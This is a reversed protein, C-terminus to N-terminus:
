STPLQIDRFCIINKSTDEPVSIVHVKENQTQIPRVFSGTNMSGKMLIKEFDEDIVVFTNNIFAQGSLPVDKVDYLSISTTKFVSINFSNKVIAAVDEIPPLAVNLYNTNKTVINKEDANSLTTTFNTLTYSKSDNYVPTSLQLSDCKFKNQVVNSFASESGCSIALSTFTKDITQFTILDVSLDYTFQNTSIFMSGVKNKSQELTNYEDALSHSTDFTKLEPIVLENKVVAFTLTVNSPVLSILGKTTNLNVSM